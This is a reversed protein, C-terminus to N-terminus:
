FISFFLFSVKQFNNFRYKVNFVQELHSENVKNKLLYTHSWNNFIYESILGGKDYLWGEKTVVPNECPQLMLSCCDFGKVSDKSFRAKDSGYGSQRADKQRESYSYVAANTANRGHRTM